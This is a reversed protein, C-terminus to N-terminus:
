GVSSSTDKIMEILRSRILYDLCDNQFLGRLKLNNITKFRNEFGDSWNGIKFQNNYISLKLVTKLVMVATEITFRNYM